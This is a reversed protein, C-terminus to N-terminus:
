SSYSYLEDKDDRTKTKSPGWESVSDNSRIKRKYPSVASLDGIGVTTTRFTHWLEGALPREFVSDDNDDEAENTVKSKIPTSTTAGPGKTRSRCVPTTTENKRSPPASVPASKTRGSPAIPAKKKTRAPVAPVKQKPRNGPSATSPKPAKPRTPSNGASPLVNEVALTQQQKQKLGINKTKKVDNNSNQMEALVRDRPTGSQTAGDRIRANKLVIKKFKSVVQANGESNGAKEPCEYQKHGSLGCKWCTEIQDKYKIKVDLSSMKIHSPLPKKAFEDKPFDAYRRSSPYGHLQAQTTTVPVCCHDALIKRFEEDPLNVHVGSFRVRIYEPIVPYVRAIPYHLIKDQINKYFDLMHSREKFTIRLLVEPVYHLGRIQDSIKMDDRMKIFFDENGNLILMIDGNMSVNVDYHKTAADESGLVKSFLEGGEAM